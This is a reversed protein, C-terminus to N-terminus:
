SGLPKRMSRSSSIRFCSHLGGICSVLPGGSRCSLFLPSWLGAESMQRLASPRHSRRVLEMLMVNMKANCVLPHGQQHAHSITVFELEQFKEEEPIAADSMTKTLVPRFAYRLAMGVAMTEPLQLTGDATGESLGQLLSSEYAKAAEEVGSVAPAADTM